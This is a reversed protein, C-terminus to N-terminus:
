CEVNCFIFHGGGKLVVAGMELVRETKGRREGFQLASSSAPLWHDRNSSVIVTALLFRKNSYGHNLNMPDSMEFALDSIHDLV